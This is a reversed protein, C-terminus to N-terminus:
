NCEEEPIETSFNSIIKLILKSAVYQQLDKDFTQYSRGKADYFVRFSKSKIYGQFHNLVARIADADSNKAAIITDYSVRKKSM